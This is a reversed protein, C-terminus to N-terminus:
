RFFAWGRPRPRKLFVVAALAYVCFVGAFFNAITKGNWQPLFFHPGLILNLSITAVSYSVDPDDDDDGDNYRGLSCGLM